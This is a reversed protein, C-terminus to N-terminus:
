LHGTFFVQRAQDDLRKIPLNSDKVELRVLPQWNERYWTEAVVQLLNETAKYYCCM